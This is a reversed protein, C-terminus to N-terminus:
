PEGQIGTRPSEDEGPIFPPKMANSGNAKRARGRPEHRAAHAIVETSAHVAPSDPVRNM